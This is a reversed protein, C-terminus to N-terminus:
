QRAAAGRWGAGRLRPSPQAGTRHRSGKAQHHLLARLRAGAGRSPIGAGTDRLRIAVVRGALGPEVRRAACVNEASIGLVGGDPMADRANLGVNLLALEFQAADVRIPWPYDALDLDIQISAPFSRSLLDAAEAVERATDIVEPSTPLDRSFALLHETMGVRKEAATGIESLIRRLGENEGAVANALRIGSLVIQILNSYNHAVGGM